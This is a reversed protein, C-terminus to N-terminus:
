VFPPSSNVVSLLNGECVSWSSPCHSRNQRWVAAGVGSCIYREGLPDFLRLKDILSIDTISPCVLKSQNYLEGTNHKRKYPSDKFTSFDFGPGSFSVAPVSGASSTNVVRSKNEPTSAEFLAPLRLKTFYFPGPKYFTSLAHTGESVLPFYRVLLTRAGPWTMDTLPPRILRHGWLVVTEYLLSM